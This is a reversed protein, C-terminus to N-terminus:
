RHNGNFRSAARSAMRLKNTSANTEQQFMDLIENQSALEENLALSINKQKQVINHLELLEQDQGRMMTRQRQLLQSDSLIKTESTEGLRRGGIIKPQEYEPRSSHMWPEKSIKNLDDNKEDAPNNRADNLTEKFSILLQKRRECEIKSVLENEEMFQLGKQLESTVLRSRLVTRLDNNQLDLKSYRLLELWKVPDRALADIENVDPLESKKNQDSPLSPKNWVCPMNLFKATTKSNKWRTDFSDNLLDELFSQLKRRREEVVEPDCSNSMQGLFFKKGPLEYPIDAGFEAELQKKLEVFESFRRKSMYKTVSDQSRVLEVLIHYLAYRKEVIEYGDIQVNFRFSESM